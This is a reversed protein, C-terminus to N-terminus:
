AAQPELGLTIQGIYDQAANLAIPHMFPGARVDRYHRSLTNGNMYAGGGAMGMSRDVIRIAAEHVFSKAAQVEKFVAHLEALTGPGTRHVAYYEDILLGSRALVSRAATLDVAIEAARLRIIEPGQAWARAHDHTTSAESAARTIAQEVAAEAIGLSATAHLPGSCLYRELMEWSWGGAPYGDRLSGAPIRVDRFTVSGSGSARMGLADWDDNLTVGPTAPPILAFGVRVAGDFRTYAVAVTLVTAAPAMTAFIKVGNISWSEGVLTATCKPRFFDQDPESIASAFLTGEAAIGRLTTEVTAARVEDGRARLVRGQRVINLLVALHMNIGITVSADGRALRSSAILLDHVSEVGLGGLPEPIPATLYRHQRLAEINEFPYSGDRDHRDARTAFDASLGEALAVLRRGSETIAKLEHQM